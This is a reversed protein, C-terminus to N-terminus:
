DKAEPAAAARMRVTVLMVAVLMRAKITDAFHHRAADNQGCREM